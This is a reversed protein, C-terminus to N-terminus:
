CSVYTVHVTSVINKNYNELIHSSNKPLVAFVKYKFMNFIAALNRTEKIEFDNMKKWVSLNLDM